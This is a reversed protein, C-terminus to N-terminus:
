NNQISYMWKGRRFDHVSSARVTMGLFMIFATGIGAASGGVQQYINREPDMLYITSVLLGIGGIIILGTGSNASESEIHRINDIQGLLITDKSVMISSDSIITYIGKVKRTEDYFVKVFTGEEMEVEKGNKVKTFYLAKQAIGIGSGFLIFLVALVSIKM